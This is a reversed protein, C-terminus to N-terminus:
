SMSASLGKIPETKLMKEERQQEQQESGGKLSVLAPEKLSRSIIKLRAKEKVGGAGEDWLAFNARTSDVGKRALL